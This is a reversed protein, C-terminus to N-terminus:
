CEAADLRSEVDSPRDGHRTARSTLGVEVIRDYLDPYARLKARGLLAYCYAEVHERWLPKRYGGAFGVVAVQLDEVARPIQRTLLAPPERGVVSRYVERARRKEALVHGSDFGADTEDIVLQGVAFGHARRQALGTSRLRVTLDTGPAADAQGAIAVGPSAPVPDTSALRTTGSSTRCDDCAVVTGTTEAVTTGNYHVVAAFESGPSVASLDVVTRFHGDRDVTVSDTLLFPSDSDTSQLRVSVETGPPLDTTGAVVAGATANVTLSDGEHVFTTDAPPSAPGTATAGGVLPGAVLLVCVPLPLRSV